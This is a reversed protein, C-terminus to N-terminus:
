HRGGGAGRRDPAGAALELDQHLVAYQPKPALAEDWLLAAGEGPFVGPIWSNADGVGWVTYSVCERVLLCAQMSQSWYAEQTYQHLASAPVNQTGEAVGTATRVDVETQAVELGLDAFRQMTERLNPFGYQTSLHTQFGVGDIPVGEAQLQKVLQYAAESKPGTYELNYDNYYLKAFPDAEHAWRFADAVYGPGLAQYWISQRWTGDDNFAENVVDWQRIRGRFHRAEAKVHDRLITRLEEPTFTTTSGSPDALWEPLQSHWVLTHGRVVQRNARASAVLADAAAWDYTGRTPEVLAWKMANEPTVSGFERAVIGSYVPDAALQDTNVAVGVHLDVRDALERLSDGSADHRRDAGHGQQAAESSATAVAPVVLLASLGLAGLALFRRAPM